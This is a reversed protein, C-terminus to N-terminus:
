HPRHGNTKVCVHGAPDMPATCLPCPPRGAAVVDLIQRRLEEGRRYDFEFTVSDPEADEAPAEAGILVLRQTERNVGMSLQGAQMEIAANYPFVPPEELDDLPHRVYGYEEDKLVTEIADGVAALQEKEMWIAASDGDDNIAQLRFRRQGPEGRSEAVIRVQGLHRSTAMNIM